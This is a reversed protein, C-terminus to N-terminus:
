IVSFFIFSFRVFVYKGDGLMALAHDLLFGAKQTPALAQLANMATATLEDQPVTSPGALM